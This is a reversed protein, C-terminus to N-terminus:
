LAALVSAASEWASGTWCLLAGEDVVFCLWGPKPDLFTWGGDQWAAIKGDQAAWMDTAPAAVIYRDGEDPASPPATLDRDLVALHVLADLVRLAENHTVHKQAQSPMIYPLLLNPTSEM